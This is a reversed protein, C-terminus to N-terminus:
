PRAGDGTLWVRQMPHLPHLPKRDRNFKSEKESPGGFVLARRRARTRIYLYSILALVASM